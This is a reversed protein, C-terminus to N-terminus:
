GKRAGKPGKKRGEGEGDPDPVGEVERFEVFGPEVWAKGHVRREDAKRGNVFKRARGWRCYVWGHVLVRARIGTEAGSESAYVPEWVSSDQTEWGGKRYATIGDLLTIQTLPEDGKARNKEAETIGPPWKTTPERPHTSVMQARNFAEMYKSQFTDEKFMPTTYYVTHPDLRM